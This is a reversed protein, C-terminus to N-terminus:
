ARDFEYSQNEKFYYLYLDELNPAAPIADPSPKEEAIVRLEVQGNVHRLNSVIHRTMIEGAMDAPGTCIWVSNQISGCITDTKDQLMLKGQKMILIDDAIYEIDSVIHTSLLVIKSGSLSSIINRFKIREKPDLGSTPEDLILVSPDNILAQAVGIRQRMGGSYAKLKKNKSELLGVLELLEECRERALMKPIGKLASLYMMFDWGTFNPYYGFDQPLYGLSERYQEGLASIDTGHFLVKGGSPKLLGCLMRMLTTKGSGNAGLLAHIGPRLEAGFSDVAFNAGYKKTLNEIALTM